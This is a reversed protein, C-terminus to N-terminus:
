RSALVASSAARRCRCTATARPTWTASHPDLSALMGNIASEVLKAEDPVDVYDGRIKEFVDGFLNLQRYTEASAAVASSTTFLPSQTAVVAAGAGMLAGVMLLSIKRMM